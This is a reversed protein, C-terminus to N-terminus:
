NDYEFEFQIDPKLQIEISTPSLYRISKAAEMTLIGNDIRVLQCNIQRSIWLSSFDQVTSPDLSIKNAHLPIRIVQESNAYATTFLLFLSFLYIMKGM